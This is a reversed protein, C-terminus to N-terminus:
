IPASDDDAGFGSSAEQFLFLFMGYVYFIGYFDWLCVTLYMSQIYLCGMSLSIYSM